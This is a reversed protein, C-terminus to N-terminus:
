DLSAFSISQRQTYLQPARAAVDTFFAEQNKPAILLKRSGYVIEVRDLSMAFSSQTSSSPRVATITSYPIRRTTVGARIVLADATTEYWQPYCFGFVLFAVFISAAYGWPTSTTIASISPLVMGALIAVGIWWDVKAEHRM